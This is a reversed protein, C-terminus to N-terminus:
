CRPPCARCAGHHLPLPGPLAGRFSCSHDLHLLRYGRLSLRDRHLNTCLLVSHAQGARLRNPSTTSCSRQLYPGLDLTLIQLPLYHTYTCSTRAIHSKCKKHRNFDSFYKFSIKCPECKWDDGDKQLKLKHRPTKNHRVLSANDRCSVGCLKCEYTKDAVAKRQRARTPARQKVNNVRQREKYEETPNERLSRQYEIQYLRNKERAERAM